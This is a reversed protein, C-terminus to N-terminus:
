IIIYLTIKPNKKLIKNYIKIAELFKRNKQNQLALNFIENLDLNNTDAM